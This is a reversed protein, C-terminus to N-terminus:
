GSETETEGTETESGTETETESGTETAPATYQPCEDMSPEDAVCGNNDAECPSCYPREPYYYACWGNYDYAINFCHEPNALTCADLMLGLGFALALLLSRLTNRNERRHM